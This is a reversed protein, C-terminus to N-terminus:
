RKSMHFIEKVMFKSKQIMAWFARRGTKMLRVEWFLLFAKMQPLYDRRPTIDGVFIFNITKDPYHCALQAVGEIVYPVFDKVIRGIRCINWDLKQIQTIEPYDMDQVADLGRVIPPMEYQTKTIGKYSNFLKLVSEPKNYAIENRSWKFYFFDLNDEYHKNPLEDRYVENCCIFFHRAGIMCSFIEAWYGGIDYHSEVIIECDKFDTLNFRQIFKELLYRWYQKQLQAPYKYPPKNLFYCNGGSEIYETLSPIQSKEKNSGPFFFKFKGAM